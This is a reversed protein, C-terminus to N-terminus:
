RKRLPSGPEIGLDRRLRASSWQWDVPNTVLGAKVPNNEIYNVIRLLEAEDRVYHDYTEVQWFRGTRGLVRNCQNATYSQISHSIAERATRQKKLSHPENLHTLSWDEDPLFLWHHHSPMVVYALLLYRVNAFHLFAEEVISSCRPDDLHRVASHDDLLDDVFKFLLRKRRDEWQLISLDAPKKLEALHNRYALIKSLGLASISGDLCGTIFYAKGDVDIHPLVRRRVVGEEM